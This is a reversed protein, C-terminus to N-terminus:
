FRIGMIGIQQIIMPVYVTKDSFAYSFFGGPYRKPQINVLFVHVMEFIKRYRAFALIDDKVSQM